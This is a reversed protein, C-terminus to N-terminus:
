HELAELAAVSMGQGYAPNFSSIADGLILYGEPFRRMYEYRRRVSAPFRDAHAEGVPEAHSVVEYIYSASLTKAFELFAPLETPAHGGYCNM